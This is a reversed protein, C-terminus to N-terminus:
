LMPTEARFFTCRLKSTPIVPILLTDRKRSPSLSLTLPKPNANYPTRTTRKDYSSARVCVIVILPSM